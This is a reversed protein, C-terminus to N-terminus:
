SGREEEYCKSCLTGMDHNGKFIYCWEQQIGRDCSHCRAVYIAVYTEKWQSM